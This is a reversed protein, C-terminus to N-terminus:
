RSGPWRSWPQVTAPAPTGRQARVPVPPLHPRAANHACPRAMGTVRKRARRRFRASASPDSVRGAAPACACTGGGGAAPHGDDGAGPGDVGRRVSAPAPTGRRALVPAAQPAARRRFRAHGSCNHPRARAGRHATFRSLTPRAPPMAAAGGNIAHPHRYETVPIALEGQLQHAPLM